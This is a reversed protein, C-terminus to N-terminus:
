YLDGWHDTQTSFKGVKEVSGVITSASHVHTQTTTGTHDLNPQTKINIRGRGDPPDNSMQFEACTHERNPDRVKFVPVTTSSITRETQSITLSADVPRQFTASATVSGDATFFKCTDTTTETDALPDSYHSYYDEHM